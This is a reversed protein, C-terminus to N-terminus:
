ATRGTRARAQAAQLILSAALCGGVGEGARMRLQLLPELGLWRLVLEHARERSVQGAVLYAQVGPELRTAVLASVSTALGDLVVPRGAEAAGLTVGALVAFEPGGLRALVKVADSEPGLGTRTLARRVVDTKTALIAADSGAGLGVTEGPDVGTLASALASAITTNGIGVEGLVVLGEGASGIRRGAVLLREADAISMADADRLNGRPDRPRESPVDVFPGGLVGADFAVVGLGATLAGAAGLSQGAVAARFVEATNSVPFASVGLEAVPHDAAALVLTGGVPAPGAALIRNLVRDLVGLSEPPTLLRDAEDTAGVLRESSPARLHSPPAAPADEAPWRDRLVVDALPQKASWAHRQLGPEPPREDPWGLCLWGLTEVGDPLGLLQGLDAPDFLTVWGMGVGHARATLWMNEIACACSWLDTDPFTARGLVGAAPTRRDCAVVIGVPAERLGELKLDLLRRGRDPTLQYAQELRMRDALHAAHDRIGPDTVVIFRWPQSHGVSPAAHAAELIATLLDEPVPDPRFRRIDRRSRLIRDLADIDAPEFAWGHPDAARAAAASPDGVTPIPRAWDARPSESGLSESAAISGSALRRRVEAAAAGPDAVTVEAREPPRAVMVVPIGLEVAVGLKAETLAGGSDKSVLVDVRHETMLARESAADFPGRTRLITWNPWADEPEEVLRVLAWRERLSEFHHLGQRGTTLFPREGLRAVVEAADAIDDVWTWRDADPHERWGPRLLRILPVGALAAAEVAHQSMTAAFPHTADVLVRVRHERLYDALGEVGGFGGIRTEGVPLAPNSVRGALSSRVGIGSSVLLEALARAERTGGLVLVECPDAM